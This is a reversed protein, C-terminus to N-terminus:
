DDGCNIQFVSLAHAEFLTAHFVGGYEGIIGHFGSTMPQRLARTAQMQHIEIAGECTDRDVAFHNGRNRLGIRLQRQLDTTTNAVQRRNLAVEGSADSVHDDASLCYLMRRKNGLSALCEGAVDHDPEVSHVAHNGGVAPRIHGGHIHDIQCPLEGVITDLRDGVAADRAQEFVSRLLAARRPDSPALLDALRLFTKELDHFQQAVGQERTALSGGAVEVEEAARPAAGAGLLLWLCAVAVQAFSVAALRFARGACVTSSSRRIDRM